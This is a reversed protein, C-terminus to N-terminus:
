FVFMDLNIKGGIRQGYNKQKNIEHMEQFTVAILAM